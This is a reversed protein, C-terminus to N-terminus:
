AGGGHERWERAGAKLLKRAVHAVSTEDDEAMEKLAAFTEADIRTQVHELREPEQTPKKARKKKTAVYRKYRAYRIQTM